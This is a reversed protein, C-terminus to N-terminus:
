VDRENIKLVWSVEADRRLLSVEFSKRLKSTGQRLSSNSFVKFFMLDVIWFSSNYEKKLPL